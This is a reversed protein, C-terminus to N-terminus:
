RAGRMLGGQTPSLEFSCCLLNTFSSSNRKVSQGGSTLIGKFTVSREMLVTSGVYRSRKLAGGLVLCRCGVFFM